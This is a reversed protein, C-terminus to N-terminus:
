SSLTKMKKDYSEKIKTATTTDGNQNDPHYIHLLSHYRKKLEEKNNINIFWDEASSTPEISDKPMNKHKDQQVNKSTDSGQSSHKQNIKTKLNYCIKDLAHYLRLTVSKLIICILAIILSQVKMKRSFLLLSIFVIISIVGIWSCINILYLGTYNLVEKLFSFFLYASNYFLKWILIKLKKM